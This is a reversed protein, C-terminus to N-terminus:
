VEILVKAISIVKGSLRELNIYAKVDSEADKRTHRPHYFLFDVDRGDQLHTVAVYMELTRIPITLGFKPDIDKIEGKLNAQVVEAELPSGHDVLAVIPWEGEADTCLIRVPCGLATYVKKGAKVEEIDFRM